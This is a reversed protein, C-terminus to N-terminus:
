MYCRCYAVIDAPLLLLLLLICDSYCAAAAGDANVDADATLLLLHCCRRVACTVQLLLLLM